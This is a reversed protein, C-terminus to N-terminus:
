STSQKLEALLVKTKEKQVSTMTDYQCKESVVSELLRTAEEKDCELGYDGRLLATGLQYSAYNSGRAAALAMYMTGQKENEEVESGEVMLFGLYATGVVSGKQHAKRCWKFARQDDEAFDNQGFYYNSAVAEIADLEGAEARKLLAEKLKTRQVWKDALDGGVVGSEILIEITNRHQTADLLRTGTMPQNTYPSKIEEGSDEKGKFFELIAEREYVRGDEAMVPDVPLELRIPCILEDTSNRKRKQLEAM